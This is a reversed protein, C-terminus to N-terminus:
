EIFFSAVFSADIEMFDTKLTGEFLAEKLSFWGNVVELFLIRWRTSQFSKSRVVVTMVRMESLNSLM